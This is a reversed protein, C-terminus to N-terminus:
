STGLGRIDAQCRRRGSLGEERRGSLVAVGALWWRGVPREGHGRSLCWEMDAHLKM